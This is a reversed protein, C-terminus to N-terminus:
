MIGGFEMYCNNKYNFGFIFDNIDAFDRNNINLFNIKRDIYENLDGSGDLVEVLKELGDGVVIEKYDNLIKKLALGREFENLNEFEKLINGLFPDLLYFEGLLIEAEIEIYYDVGFKVRKLNIIKELGQFDFKRRLIPHNDFLYFIFRIDSDQELAFNFKNLKEESIIIM